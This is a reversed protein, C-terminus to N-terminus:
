AASNVGLRKTPLSGAEVSNRFGAGMQFSTSKVDFKFAFHIAQKRNRGPPRESNMKLWVIRLDNYTVEPGIESFDFASWVHRQFAM